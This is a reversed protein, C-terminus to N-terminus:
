TRVVVQEASTDDSRLEEPTPRTLLVGAFVIGIGLGITLTIVVRAVVPAFAFPISSASLTSLDALGGVMTILGAGFTVLYLGDTRKRLYMWLGVLTAIWAVFSAFGISATRALGETFTSRIGFAIGVLHVVDAVLLMVVTPIILPRLRRRGALTRGDFSSALSLGLALVAAAVLWPLKSSGPKWRVEVTADYQVTDGTVIGDPSSGQLIVVVERQVLHPKGPAKRVQPPDGGMRHGRHDHWRVVSDLSLRKWKPPGTPDLTEPVDTAGNRDKNLYVAASQENQFVGDPGVRLYPNGDYDPVSLEPGGRWRLELRSGAEISRLDFSPKGAQLPVGDERVISIVQAIYNSSPANGASHAAAEPARLVHGILLVCGVLLTRVSRAIRTLM